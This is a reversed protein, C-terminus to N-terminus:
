QLPYEWSAIAIVDLWAIYRHEPRNARIEDALAAIAARRRAQAFAWRVSPPFRRAFGDERSVDVIRGTNSDIFLPM